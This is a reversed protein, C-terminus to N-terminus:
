SLPESTGESNLGISGFYINKRNRKPLVEFSSCFVSNRRHQYAIFEKGSLPKSFLWGQAYTVGRAKLFAAQEETEVGEAVSVSDLKKTLDIILEIVSSTATERGIMQVFSQDIKIADLPLGQLYQLNSYGTGFDDIAVSHGAQRARDLTMGASEIDMFGRETAELWIQEKRVGTDRLKRDLVDIIRGTEIDSASVNIAIHLTRDNNLAGKLDRIVTDIVQDTIPAILGTEEAVPIFLDPRVFTGDPMKWRVLAEAGVCVGTSLEIIPQYHVIFERNRVALELETQLSLRRRSFWYVASVLAIALLVGVPLFVLMEDWILFGLKSRPVIVVAHLGERDAVGVLFSSAALQSADTIAADAGFLNSDDKKAIVQKDKKSLYVAMEDDLAIDLFSAPLILANYNGLKIASFERSLSARPKVRLIIELGDPTTFDPVSQTIQTDAEGWSSCKLIGNEFYGIEDISMTNVTQDRMVEIHVPSCPELMQGRIADLTRHVEEFTTIARSVARDAVAALREQEKHLAVNYSVWTMAIIPILAVVVAMTIGFAIIRWRRSPVYQEAM